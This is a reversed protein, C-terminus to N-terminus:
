PVTKQKRGPVRKTSVHFGSLSPSGSRDPGSNKRARRFNLLENPSRGLYSAGPSTPTHRSPAYLSGDGHYTHQPDYFPSHHGAAGGHRSIPISKTPISTGAIPRVVIDTRARSHTQTNPILM